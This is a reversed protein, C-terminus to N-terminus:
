RINITHNDLGQETGDQTSLHYAEVTYRGPALTLSLKAEGQAPASRDLQVVQQAVVAGAADRVRVRVSGEVVIGAVRVTFTRGVESGYQPDILWVPALLDLASGRHLVGDAPLQSGWLSTVPVGDDLLRVGGLSTVATVTWVLQQVALRAAVPEPTATGVGTLDVTAVDGAVAVSGVRAAAPWGASGYDPDYASSRDLMTAVAVRARAALSGDGIPLAHFERYLAPNQGVYYVPLLALGPPLPTTAGVGTDPSPAPQPPVGVSVAVAVAVAAATLGVGATGLMVAGRRTFPEWWRRWWRGRRAAIKQRIESLARAEVDVKAAEAAMARRLIDEGVSQNM